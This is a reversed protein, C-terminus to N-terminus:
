RKTITKIPKIQTSPIRLIEGSIIAQRFSSKGFHYDMQCFFFDSLLQLHSIVSSKSPKYNSKKYTHKSHHKADASHNFVQNPAIGRPCYKLEAGPNSYYHNRSLAKIEVIKL